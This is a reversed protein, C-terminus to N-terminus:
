FLRDLLAQLASAREPPTAALIKQEQLIHILKSPELSENGVIEAHGAAVQTGHVRQDSEVRANLQEGSSFVFDDQLCAAGDAAKRRCTNREDTLVRLHESVHPSLAEPHLVPRAHPHIENWKAGAVARCIAVTTGFTVVHLWLAGCHSAALIGNFPASITVLRLDPVELGGAVATRAVLGGQSHGIVVLERQGRREELAGLATRLQEASHSLRARDDYEFCLAEQGHFEFVRALSRYRASSANCGHVLVVLPRDPAFATGAAPGEGCPVLGPIPELAAGKIRVASSPACALVLVTALWALWTTRSMSISDGALMRTRM